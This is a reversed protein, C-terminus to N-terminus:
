DLGCVGSIWSFTGTVSTGIALPQGNLPLESVPHMQWSIVHAATVRRQSAILVAHEERPIDALAPLARDLVQYKADHRIVVAEASGTFALLSLLIALSPRM